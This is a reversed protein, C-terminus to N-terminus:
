KPKDIVSGLTGPNQGVQQTPVRAGDRDAPALRDTDTPDQGNEEAIRRRLLLPYGVLGIVTFAFWQLAYSLHNGSDLTVPEAPRPIVGAQRADEDTVELYATAVLNPLQRQLVALDVNSVLEARPGGRPLVQRAPLPPRLRGKVEVTGQPPDPAREDLPVWGRDIVLTRGDDLALPTLIDYGPRDNRSRPSLQVQEDPLYTGAARVPQFQVDDTQLATDLPVAAAQLVQELRDNEAAVEAHRDLQWLGLNIFAVAIAIVAIHTLVWGPRRLLRPM